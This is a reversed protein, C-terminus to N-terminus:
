RRPPDVRQRFRLGMIARRFGHNTDWGAGMATQFIMRSRRTHFKSTVLIISRYGKERVFPILAEAEELTSDAQHPVVM